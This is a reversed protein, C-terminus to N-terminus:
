LSRRYLIRLLNIEYKRLKIKNVISKLIKFPKKSFKLEFCIRFLAHSPKPELGPMHSLVVESILLKDGLIM